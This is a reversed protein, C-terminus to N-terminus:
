RSAETVTTSEGDAGVHAVTVHGPLTGDFGVEARYEVVGLCAECADAGAAEVGVGVTLRDTDPDYEVTELTAEHCPDPSRIKGDVVVRDTGFSVSSGQEGTMCDTRETEITESAVAPTPEQTPTATPYGTPAGTSEGDDADDDGSGPITELCGAVAGAGGLAALRQLLRRREM